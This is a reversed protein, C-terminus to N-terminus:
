AALDMDPATFNSKGALYSKIRGAFAKIAEEAEMDLAPRMFPHAAHGPHWIVGSVFNDGIKMVSAKGTRQMGEETAKRTLLRPSLGSDGASIFHGKVGYEHFLGLFSHPGWLRVKIRVTGDQDVRPSGTRIAKAMKGSQKRALARARDRVPKAAATMGARVAGKQLKKPFAGLFQLLEPGGKLGVQRNKM